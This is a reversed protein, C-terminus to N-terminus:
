CRTCSRPKVSSSPGFWTISSAIALGSVCLIAGAAYDGQIFLYLAVPLWVIGAGVLPLYALIGMVAGWLLPAPIGALWFALGRRH